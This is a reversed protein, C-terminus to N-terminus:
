LTYCPGTLEAYGPHYDLKPLRMSAPMWMLMHRFLAALCGAEVPTYAWRHDPPTNTVQMTPWGGLRIVFGKGLIAVFDVMDKEAINKEKMIEPMWKAVTEIEAPGSFAVVYSIPYPLIATLPGKTSPVSIEMYVYALAKHEKQAECAKALEAKTLNSKCEITAVAGEILFGTDTRSYALKPFDRRYLVIDVQGRYAKQGPSPVSHASILEGQGVELMSPLHAELFDRVFWERPGGRLNPHGTNTAIASQALLVAELANLHANIM